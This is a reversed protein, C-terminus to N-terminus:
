RDRRSQDLERELVLELGVCSLAELPGKKGHGAGPELLKGM